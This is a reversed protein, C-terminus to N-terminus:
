RRRRHRERERRDYDDDYEPRRDRDRELDQYSERDRDRDRTNSRGSGGYQSTSYRRSTSARAEDLTPLVVVEEVIEYTTDQRASSSAVPYSSSSAVPASSYQDSSSSVPPYYNQDRSSRPMSSQEYERDYPGESYYRDSSSVPEAIRDVPQSTSEIIRDDRPQYGSTSSPRRMDYVPSKSSTISSTAMQPPPGTHPAYGSGHVYSSQGASVYGSSSTWGSGHQAYSSSHHAGPYGTAPGLSDFASPLAGAYSSSADTVAGGAGVLIAARDEATRPLGTDSYNDEDQVFNVENYYKRLLRRSASDLEGVDKVKVNTQVTYPRGYNIYSRRDLERAGSALKVRLPEKELGNIPNPVRNGSYIQGHDNLRIGRKDIGRGDYTTVPLCVCFRHEPDFKVVVFRRITSYVREGYQIVSVTSMFQSDYVNSATGLADTWLTSFVRGVRFWKKYDHNRVKYSKDLTEERKGGETSAVYLRNTSERGTAIGKGKDQYSGSFGSPGPQTMSDWQAPVSNGVYATTPISTHQASSLTYADGGVEGVTLSDM